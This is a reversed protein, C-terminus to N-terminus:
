KPQTNDIIPLSKYKKGWSQAIRIIFLQPGRYTRIHSWYFIGLFRKQEFLSVKISKEYKDRDIVIKHLNM